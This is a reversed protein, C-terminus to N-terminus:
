VLVVANSPCVETCRGCGTCSGTDVVAVHRVMTIAAEPCEDVCVGCGTCRDVEVRAQLVQAASEVDSTTGSEPPPGAAAEQRQLEAMQGQLRVLHEHLAATQRELAAIQAVRSVEAVASAAKAGAAPAAAAAGQERAEPSPAVPPDQDAPPVRPDRAGAPRFLGVLGAAADIWPRAGGGADPQGEVGQGAWRGGRGTGRGGGM